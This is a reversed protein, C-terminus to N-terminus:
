KRHMHYWLGHRGNEGCEVNGDTQTLMRHMNDYTYTVKTGDAQTYIVMDGASNYAYNVTGGEYGIVSILKNEDNYTYVAKTGDERTETAINGFKDYTYKRTGNATTESELENNDNYTKYCYSGDAYVISTTRYNEDFTYVTKNGENDITTTTNKGYILTSVGGNADTQKVVRGETDYVNTIVTNGNEDAWSTMQHKGDYQYTRTAGNANTVAILNGKEDYAYSVYHNDPLTIKTIYGNDNQAVKFVKGSPTEISNLRYSEDYTLKTEFGYVDTVSVLMGYQNFVYTKQSADTIKWGDEEVLEYIYGVPASYTGDDNKSFYLYSGDARKYVLTGDARKLLYQDYAFSWGRGFVSNVDASFSNYTRGITFEGGFDAITADNQGMYFNGTNLNIPEFGFECHLGRGILAGDIKRKDDDSLEATNYPEATKPNRIFLVNGAVVLTDQVKNDKMLTDLSVGYHQAIKPLTDYDKVLYLLFSDSVAEAGTQEKGDVTKSATAKVQYITDLQFGLMINSQWNSYSGVQPHAEPFYEAFVTSDPYICEKEATTTDSGVLTTGDKYLKYTVNAKATALGSVFLGDFMQVGNLSNEVLPHLQITTNDLPYDSLFPDGAEEWEIVLKPPMTREFNNIVECIEAAELTSGENLGKIVLSQYEWVGNLWNNVAESIDYDIYVNKAGAANQVGLYIHEQPQTNWTINGKWSGNVYSITFQSDGKSYNTRQSISFLAKTINADAPISDLASNLRVYLRCNGNPRSNGSKSGDDLGVYYYAGTGYFSYGPFNEEVGYMNFIQEEADESVISPDIRVPYQRKEDNLWEVDPAVTLITQGNKEELSLEIDTCIEGAADEMLPAYLVLTYNEVSDGEPYFFVLNSNLEAELGVTKLVYQFVNKDTSSNLIIDEKVSDGIVTYQVDIGDYVNNYRIANDKVTPNNYDGEVPIIELQSNDKTLTIGTDATMAYPFLVKYDNASNVYGLETARSRSQLQSEVLTNDILQLKGTEDLYTTVAGGVITVYNDKGTKYTRSATDYSVLVANDLGMAELQTKDDIAEYYNQPAKDEKEVPANSGDDVEETNTGTNDIIETDDLDDPRDFDVWVQNNEWINQLMEIFPEVTPILMLLVLLAAIGSKLFRKRNRKKM